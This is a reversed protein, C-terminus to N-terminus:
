AVRSCGDEPPRCGRPGGTTMAAISDAAASWAASRELTWRHRGLPQSTEIGKHAIRHRIGRQFLWRRLHHDYGKDRPAQRAQVPPVPHATHREGTPGPGAYEGLRDRVEVLGAQQPLWTRRPGSPAARGVGQGEVVRHVPPPGDGRGVRVVGRAAAAVHLGVDGRVRISLLGFAPPFRSRGHVEWMRAKYTLKLFTQHEAASVGPEM